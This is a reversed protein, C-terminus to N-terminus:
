ADCTVMWPTQAPADYFGSGDTFRTPDTMHSYLENLRAVWWALLEQGDERRPNAL